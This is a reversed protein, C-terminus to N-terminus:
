EYDDREPSYVHQRPSTDNRANLEDMDLGAAWHQSLLSTLWYSACSWLIEYLESKYLALSSIKLVILQEVM